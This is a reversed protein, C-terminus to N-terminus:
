AINQLIPAFAPGQSTASGGAAPKWWPYSGYSQLELLLLVCATLLAILAIVLMWTYVGSSQKRVVEGAANSSSLQSM